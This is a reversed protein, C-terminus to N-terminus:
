GILDRYYDIEGQVIQPDIDREVMSWGEEFVRVKDLIEPAWQVSKNALGRLENIKAALEEQRARWSALETEYETQKENRALATVEQAVKKRAEFLAEELQYKEEASFFFEFDKQRLVTELRGNEGASSQYKALLAPDLHERFYAEQKDSGYRERMTKDTQRYPWTTRGIEILSALIEGESAEPGSLLTNFQSVLNHRLESPILPPLHDLAIKLEELLAKSKKPM